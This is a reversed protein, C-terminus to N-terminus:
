FHCFEPYAFSFHGSYETLIKFNVVNLGTIGGTRCSHVHLRPSTLGYSLVKGGEVNRAHTCLDTDMHTLIQAARACTLAM